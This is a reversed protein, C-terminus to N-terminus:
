LAASYKLNSCLAKSYELTSWLAGSHELTKFLLASLAEIIELTSQVYTELQATQNPRFSSSAYSCSSCHM